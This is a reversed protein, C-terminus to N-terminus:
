YHFASWSLSTSVQAISARSSWLCCHECCCCSSQLEGGTVVCHLQAQLFSFAATPPRPVCVSSSHVSALVPVRIINVTPYSPVTISHSHQSNSDPFWLVDLGESSVAYCLLANEKKKEIKHHQEFPLQGYTYKALNPWIAFIFTCLRLCGKM